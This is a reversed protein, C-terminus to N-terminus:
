STRSGITRNWLFWAVGLWMFAAITDRLLTFVTALPAFGNGTEIESGFVHLVFHPETPSAAIGAVTESMWPLLVFPFVSGFRQSTVPSLSISTTPPTLGCGPAEPSAGPPLGDAPSGTPNVNVQVPTTAKDTGPDLRTTSSPDTSVADGPGASTDPESLINEELDTWGEAELREKYHTYVEDHGPAPVEIPMNESDPNAEVVVKTMTEVHSGAAPSVSVTSDAPQTVVAHEWTLVDLEVDTYGAAEILAVCEAGTTAILFCSPVEATGPLAPPEGEMKEPLSPELETETEAPVHETECELVHCEAEEQRRQGHEKLKESYKKVTEPLKEYSPTHGENHNFHHGESELGEVAAKTTTRPLGIHMRSRARYEVAANMSLEHEKFGYGIEKCYGTPEGLIDFPGVKPPYGSIGRGATQAYHTYCWNNPATFVATRGNIIGPAKETEPAECSGPYWRGSIDAMLIYTEGEPANFSTTSCSPSAGFPETPFENEATLKSGFLTAESYSCNNKYSFPVGNWEEYPKGSPCRAENRLYYPALLNVEHKGPWGLAAGSSARFNIRMWALKEAAVDEHEPGPEAVWQEYDETSSFIAQTVFNTGTTIDEYALTGALPVLGAVLCPACSAAGVESVLGASEAGDLTEAGVAAETSGGTAMGKYLSEERGVLESVLEDIKSSLGTPPKSALESSGTYMKELNEVSALAKESEAQFTSSQSSMGELNPHSEYYKALAEMAADLSGQTAPVFAGAASSFSLAAVVLVLAITALRAVAQVPHRAISRLRTV